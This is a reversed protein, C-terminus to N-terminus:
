IIIRLKNLFSFSLNGIIKNLNQSRSYYSIWFSYNPSNTNVSIFKLGDNHGIKFLWIKINQQYLELWDLWRWDTTPNNRSISIDDGLKEHHYRKLNVLCSRFYNQFKISFIIVLVEEYVHLFLASLILTLGAVTLLDGDNIVVSVFGAIASLIIFMLTLIFWFRKM